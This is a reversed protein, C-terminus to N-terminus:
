QSIRRRRLFFTDISEENRISPVFSAKNKKKTPMAKKLESGLQGIISLNDPTLRNRAKSKVLGLSSFLRECSAAHPVIAFVKMAFRRLLPFNRTFKTWFLRLSQSPNSFSKDFPPYNNKYNILENRLLIADSKKFKWIQALELSTRIMEEGDIKKSIALHKHAPSLFLM